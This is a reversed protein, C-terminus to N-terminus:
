GPIFCNTLAQEILAHEFHQDIVADGIGRLVTFNITAGKNKKDHRLLSLITEIATSELTLRPYKQDITNSIIQAEELSLHGGLRALEVEALMGQAVCYGHSKALHQLFYGEIGHGITHGFNLAKRLGTEKFDQLVINNKIGVSHAILSADIDKPDINKLANWHDADAILGHKLMEAMGSLSESSPLTELFEPHCVVLEPHSFTGVQNKFSGLDVGTKGGASADVMALLSTPINIFAIGRKYISAIFGGLDTIMGGGVNIIVDSRQVRYDSLTELLQHCMELTKNAEGAPVVIVEANSFAGFNSVLHPVCHEYTNEDAIIIKKSDSFRSTLIEELSSDFINGIEISYGHSQIRHM